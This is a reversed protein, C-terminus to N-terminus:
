SELHKGCKSCILWGGTDEVVEVDEMCEDCFLKKVM